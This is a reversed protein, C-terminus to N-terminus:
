RYHPGCMMMGFTYAVRDMLLFDCSGGQVSCMLFGHVTPLPLASKATWATWEQQTASQPAHPEGKLLWPKDVVVWTDRNPGSRHYIIDCTEKAGDSFLLQAQFDAAIKCRPTRKGPSVGLVTMGIFQAPLSM